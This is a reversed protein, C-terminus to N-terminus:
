SPTPSITVTVPDGVSLGLRAAASGNKLAIELTDCSGIIALLGNAEAYSASLGHITVGGVEVRTEVAGHFLGAPLDTILNGFRDVHLTRGHVRNGDRTPTSGPLRILSDVVEGLSAPPTGLSLHAAVPAFLDRGHFTASLPSLWYRPNNLHYARCGPPTPVRGARGAGTGSGDDLLFSFIGNDPGVFRGSPTDLLVPRRDSGVGPDVVAVHIASPPFFRRSNELLFAGQRINQPSIEHTVDVILANPNIGLIVGKVVGVYPDAHGFDTTLTIIPRSASM